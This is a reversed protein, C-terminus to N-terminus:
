EVEGLYAEIVAPNAQVEHPTKGLTAMLGKLEAVQKADVKDAELLAVYRPWAADVNKADETQLLALLGM